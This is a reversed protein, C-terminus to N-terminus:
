LAWTLLGLFIFFGLVDTGAHVFVSSAVAPDVRLVRLAIPVVSGLTAAVLLNAFMAGALVLSLRADGRWGYVLLGCVTGLMLGNLAGIALERRILRTLAGPELAGIALGRVVLTMTQVGANGGQSAVITMLAAAVAIVRITGEFMAITMASAAAALLHVALWPLRSKVGRSVVYSFAGDHSVGALSLMDETAEEEIVDVVDDVTISGVLRGVADVVPASLLDYKEFLHAVEEQDEDAAVAFVDQSMIEDALTAGDALVLARLPVQGVLRQDADVVFVGAFDDLVAANRRLYDIVDRVPMGTPVSAIETKMIGGATDAAYTLLEAVDRRTEPDTRQLLLRRREDPVDGILDAADDTDLHELIAALREDSLRDILGSRSSENAERFVRSALEDPLREFLRLRLDEDDLEGLVEAIDAPHYDGALESFAGEDQAEVAAVLVSKDLPEGDGAAGPHRPSHGVTM